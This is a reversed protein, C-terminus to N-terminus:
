ENWNARWFIICDDEFLLNTLRIGGRAVVVGRIEMRMEFMNILNNLGEVCLLFLYPSLPDEQRLGKTPRIISGSSENIMVVYSVLNICTMILGIWRGGFGLKKMVFELFPWEVRDYANFIEVKLAM